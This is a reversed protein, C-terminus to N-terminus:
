RVLIDPCAVRWGEVEVALQPWSPLLTLNEHGARTVLVTDEVKTGAITPNWSFLQNERVVERCSRDAVWDRNRYSLAGGQHHKKWEEPFGAAAYAEVGRAFVESAVAGPRTAAIFAANVRACAEHRRRLEADPEGFSVIRSISVILGGHRACRGLLAQRLLRRGTPAPHRYRAMREDFAVLAVTADGGLRVEEAMLRAAAEHETMGPALERCIAEMSRASAMAAERVRATEEPTLVAQLAAIEAEREEFGDVPADSAMRRGARLKALTAERAGDGWPYTALEFAPLASLEEDAIRYREIESAVLTIADPTVLLDAVGDAVNREVTADGGCTLWSFSARRRLLVGECGEAAFWGRLREAKVEFESTATM